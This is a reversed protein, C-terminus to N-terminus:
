EFFASEKRSAQTRWDRRWRRGKKQVEKKGQEEQLLKLEGVPAVGTSLDVHYSTQCEGIQLEALWSRPWVRRATFSPCEGVDPVIRARRLRETNRNNTFRSAPLLQM